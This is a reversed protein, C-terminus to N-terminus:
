NNAASIAAEIKAALAAGKPTIELLYNQQTIMGGDVLFQVVKNHYDLDVGQGMSTAFLHGSPVGGLIGSKAENISALYAAILVSPDIKKTIM